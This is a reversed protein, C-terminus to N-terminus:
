HHSDRKYYTKKDMVSKVEDFSLPRSYGDWGVDLCKGFNNHPLTTPNGHHSHGCLHWVDRQQQNWIEIPYHCIVILRGNISIEKYPGLFTLKNNYTVPYMNTKPPINYQLLCEKYVDKIIANHNGWIYYINNCNINDIINDFHERNSNLCFDGLHILIDNERVHDNITYVIFDDHEDVSSYGRKEYIFPQKHGFHSDSTFYIKSEKNHNFKIIDETTM